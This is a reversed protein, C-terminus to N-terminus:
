WFLLPKVRKFVYKTTLFSAILTSVASIGITFMIISFPPEPVLRLLKIFVFYHSFGTALSGLTMALAVKYPSPIETKFARTVRLVLDTTLGRMFWSFIILFGLSSTLSYLSGAVIAVSLASGYYGLALIGITYITAFIPQNAHSLARSFISVTALLAAIVIIISIKAAKKIVPKRTNSNKMKLESGTKPLKLNDVIRYFVEQKRSFDFL